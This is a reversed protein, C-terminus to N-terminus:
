STVPYRHDLQLNLQLVNVCPEGFFGLARGSSNQAVLERIQEPRVHRVKAVRAVQIDAYAPSINPDLGSGGATVADAPVAPAAPAAGRIPVIQGLSYDEGTKACEVRVGEYLSVFPTPTSECPENVSVVRAPHTVNGREDRPGIVSLVAGVGGGTCFPRSGDVGELEAVAASRSCVTTLLGPKGPADVISEPGLNSGGSSTPDYGTGAASPRSQFYQPLPNGDKDTFLQGILRSGVPKGSATLISGEAHDRLGPFQAVVWVLLPYALGTIVTLVLLARLAAWHLRIFNSLTM